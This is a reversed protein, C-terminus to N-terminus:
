ASRKKASDALDEACVSDAVHQMYRLVALRGTRMGQPSTTRSRIDKCLCRGVFLM